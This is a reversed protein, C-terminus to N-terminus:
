NYSLYFSLLRYDSQLILFCVKSQVKLMINHWQGNNLKVVDSMVMAVATGGGLSMKASVHGGQVLEVSIFDRVEARDWQISLM